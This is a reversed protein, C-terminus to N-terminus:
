RITNDSQYNSQPVLDCKKEVAARRLMRKETLIQEYEPRYAMAGIVTGGTGENARLMLDGLQKERMNLYTWRAVMDNCHYASYRGPDVLITGIGDGGTCGALVIATAVWTLTTCTLTACTKRGVFAFLRRACPPLMQRDAPTKM